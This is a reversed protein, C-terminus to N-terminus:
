VHTLVALTVAFGLLITLLVAFEVQFPVPYAATVQKRMAAETNM